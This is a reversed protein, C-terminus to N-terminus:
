LGLSGRAADLTAVGPLPVDGKMLKWGVLDFTPPLADRKAAYSVTGALEVVETRGAVVVGKADVPRYRLRLTFALRGDDTPRVTGTMTWPPGYLAALRPAATRIYQTASAAKITEPKTIEAPAVLAGQDLLVAALQSMMLPASLMYDVITDLPPLTDRTRYAVGEAGILLVEGGRRSARGEERYTALLDGNEVQELTYHATFGPTKTELDIASFQSWRGAACLASWKATGCQRSDVGPLRPNAPVQPLASADPLSAAPPPTTQAQAAGAALLAALAIAAAFRPRPRM